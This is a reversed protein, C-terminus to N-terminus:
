RSARYAQTTLYYKTLMNKREWEPIEGDVLYQLFQETVQAFHAEHGVRHKEPIVVLWGNDTSKLSVGPYEQAIEEIASQLASEYEDSRNGNVPEVYLTPIYDQAEGQRIILNAKSGRMISFHTDGAGEPAQYNWEVSVKGHVGRVKFVFSGNAFVNLNEEDDLDEQLYDPYPEM